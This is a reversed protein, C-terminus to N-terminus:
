HMGQNWEQLSVAGRNSARCLSAEAPNDQRRPPPHRKNFRRALTFLRLLPRADLAGLM